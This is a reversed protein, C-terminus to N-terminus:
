DEQLLSQLEALEEAISEEVEDKSLQEVESLAKTPLDEDTQPNPRELASPEWNLKKILYGTLHQITPYDFILTSSLSCGLSTVLRNKLEIAMLSDMGMETFGRRSDPLRSSDLGLVGAVEDQLHKMLLKPRENINEQELQHLINLSTDAQNSASPSEIHGTSAGGVKELLPRPGKIEYLEKFLDWDMDAVVRQSAKSALLQELIEIAKEPPMIKIGTQQLWKRAEGTAMGGGGWPGWNISLGPLGSRSRYACLTDLFQNAAAYHAQGKSGWASAISSFCVFFDLSMEKTLQHLIWAGAVKPRLVAQM